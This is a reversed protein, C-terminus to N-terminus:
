VLVSLLPVRLTLPLLCSLSLSLSRPPPLLSLPLTLLSRDLSVISHSLSLCPCSSACPNLDRTLPLLLHGPLCPGDRARARPCAQFFGRACAHMLAPESKCPRVTVTVNQVARRKGVRFSISLKGIITRTPALRVYGVDPLRSPALAQRQRLPVFSPSHPCSGSVGPDGSHEPRSSPSDQSESSCPLMSPVQVASRRMCTAVLVVHTSTAVQAPLLPQVQVPGAAPPCGRGGACRTSTPWHHRTM